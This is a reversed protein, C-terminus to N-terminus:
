MENKIADTFTPIKTKEILLKPLYIAALLTVSFLSIFIYTIFRKLNPKIIFYKLCFSIEAFLFLAFLSLIFCQPNPRSFFISSFVGFIMTILTCAYLIINISDTKPKKKPNYKSKKM